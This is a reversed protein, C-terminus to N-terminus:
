KLYSLCLPVSSLEITFCIFFTAYIAAIVDIFRVRIRVRSGLRAVRIVDRFGRMATREAM